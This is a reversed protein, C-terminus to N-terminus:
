TEGFWGLDTGVRLLPEEPNDQSWWAEVRDVWTLPYQEPSALIENLVDTEPKTPSTPMPCGTPGCARLLALHEISPDAGFRHSLAQRAPWSPARLRAMSELSKSDILPLSPAGKRAVFYSMLLLTRPHLTGSSQVVESPIPRAHEAVMDGATALAEFAGSTLNRAMEDMRMIVKPLLTLSGTSALALLWTQQDVEDDLSEAQGLWWNADHNTRAKDILYGYDCDPGFAEPLAAGLRPENALGVGPHSGGTLAVVSALFSHGWLSQLAQAVRSWLVTTKRKGQAIRVAERLAVCRADLVELRKFRQALGAQDAEIQQALLELLGERSFKRDLEGAIGASASAAGARLVDGDLVAQLLRKERPGGSPPTYGMRLLERPVGPGELDCEDGREASISLGLESGLRLWVLEQAQGAVPQSTEHWWSSLTGRDLHHAAISVWDSALGDAPSVALRGLIRDCLYAGGREGPLMPGQAEASQVALLRLSIADGLLSDIVLKQAFPVASFVGDALFHVTANVAHAPHRHSQLADNIGGALGALQNADATGAFFRAVNFWYPRALLQELVEAKLPPTSGNAAYQALYKAAFYERVSQVVFEWTGDIKSTLAWFRDSVATFVENVEAFPGDRDLLYTVIEQEVARKTLRGSSSHEEALAQMRWGLYATVQEIWRRHQRVSPSKATERNLLTTIYADYLPTREEPLSEGQQQILHLLIALQMPNNSLQAIHPETSRSTFTRILQRREARQVGRADAWKKLYDQQLHTSLPQLELRVFRSTSPEALGARNPRTTVVVQGTKDASAGFRAAFRDIESVVEQRRIPDAVEDLGDLVILMPFTDSLDQIDKVSVKRNGSAAQALDALFTDISRNKGRRPKASEAEGSLPSAGDLWAAFDRLEVRLPIKATALAAKEVRAREGPDDISEYAGAAVQINNWHHHCLYQGLTSKGQGPEGLVVSFRIGESTLAKFAGVPTPGQGMQVEALPVQEVDVFLREIDESMDIQTFKLSGDREEQNALVRWVLGRTKGWKSEEDKTRLLYRLAEVGALMQIYRFVLDDPASDVMSDVDSRWRAEFNIGFEEEFSDLETRLRDMSGRGPVSTGIVNTLIIYRTAGERVLREINSREGEITDALWTAPNLPPKTTWKVQFIIFDGETRATGDRGGDAMGVPYCQVNSFARSILAQCLEQFRNAGLREYLYTGSYIPEPRSRGSRPLGPRPATMPNGNTTGVTTPM